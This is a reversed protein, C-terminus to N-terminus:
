KTVNFKFFVIDGDRMMYEKGESRIKGAARIGSETKYQELDDLSYVDARIFGKEFDTHIVGAAQPASSGAHITWARNEDEGATFFTELKLLRYVSKALISLGSETIGLEELFEPREEPPLSAIEAEIKGCLRVVGSGEAAAYERVRSVYANDELITDESVNAAYLISKATLLNLEHLQALDAPDTITKRVPTGQSLSEYAAQFVVLKVKAEKDGSRAAKEMRSLGRELTGMDALMLETTILDIDRLPDVSGEVHIVNEDEFCRVVHIIADVNKIHGLFQNGLGEGKSAGKVLGAIDVLELFAPIVKRTPILETIRTLREDPVVIIGTNPDITTFPYNKVEAKGNCFANFITSKGVNPLGVIGASLGM